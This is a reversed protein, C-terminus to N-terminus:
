VLGGSGVGVLPVPRDIRRDGLLVQGPIEAVLAVRGAIFCTILLLGAVSLMLRGPSMILSLIILLQDTIGASRTRVPWNNIVPWGTIVCKVVIM